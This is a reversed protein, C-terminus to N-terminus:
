KYFAGLESFVSQLADWRFFAQPSSLGGEPWFFTLTTRKIEPTRSMRVGAFSGGDELLCTQQLCYFSLIICCVGM